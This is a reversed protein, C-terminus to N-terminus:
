CTETNEKKIDELASVAESFSLERKATGEDIIWNSSYLYVFLYTIVFFYDNMWSALLTLSTKESFLCVFLFCVKIQSWTLLQPFFLGPLSFLLFHSFRRTTPSWLALPFAPLVVGFSFASAVSHGTNLVPMLNHVKNWISFSLSLYMFINLNLPSFM